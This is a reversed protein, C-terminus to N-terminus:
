KSAEKDEEEEKEELADLRTTIDGLEIVKLVGAAVGAVHSLAHISDLGIMYAKTDRIRDKTAHAYGVRVGNGLISLLEARSMSGAKISETIERIEEIEDLEETQKDM